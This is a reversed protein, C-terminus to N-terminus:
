KVILVPCKSLQTVKHSVGGLMVEKINGLGRSGIVILDQQQECAVEVIKRSISSGQVFLSSAEIGQVKLKEQAERLLEHGAKSVEALIKQLDTIVVNPPIVLEKGVNILTLKAEYQKALQAATVLVKESMKSGDIAVLIRNFM